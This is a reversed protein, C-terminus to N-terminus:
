EAGGASRRRPQRVPRAEAQEREQEREHRAEAVLDQAQEVAESGAEQVRDAVAMGAKVVTKAAPRLGGTIAAGVAVAGALIVGRPFVFEILEEFM